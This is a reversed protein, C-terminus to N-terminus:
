TFLKTVLLSREVILVSVEVMWILWVRTYLGMSSGVQVIVNSIKKLRGVIVFMFITIIWLSSIMFILMRFLGINVLIANNKCLDNTLEQMWNLLTIWNPKNINSTSYLIQWVINPLFSQFIFQPTTQADYYDVVAVAAVIM